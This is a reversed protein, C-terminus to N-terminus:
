RQGRLMRMMRLLEPLFRMEVKRVTVPSPRLGVAGRLAQVAVGVMRPKVAAVSELSAGAALAVPGGKMTVRQALHALAKETLPVPM